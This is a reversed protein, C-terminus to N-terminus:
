ETDDVASEAGADNQVKAFGRRVGCTQNRPIRKSAACLLVFSGLSRREHEGIVDVISFSSNSSPLELRPNHHIDGSAVLTGRAGGTGLVEGRQQQHDM